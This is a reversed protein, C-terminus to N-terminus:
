HLSCLAQAKRRLSDYCFEKGVGVTLSMSNPIINLFIDM